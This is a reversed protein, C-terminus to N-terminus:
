LGRPSDVRSRYVLTRFYLRSDFFVTCVNNSYSNVAFDPRRFPDDDDDPNLENALQCGSMM